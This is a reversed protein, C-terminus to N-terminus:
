PILEDMRVLEYGADRLGTIIEPLANVTQYGGVHMLVIGNDSARNLVRDILYQETVNVGNMTEAWDHSDITWMVTYQYGHEGLVNLLRNNYEGYPPRFMTPTYGITDKIINTSEIIDTSVEDETMTNMHGHAQSHSEILHGRSVIERTLDPHDKVWGGRLFFTAKVQYQDLVDLLQLTKDYEWGSDFTLALQKAESTSTGGWVLKSATLNLNLDKVLPPPPAPTPTPTETTAPEPQPEQVAEPTLIPAPESVAGHTPETGGTTDPNQDSNQHSNGCGLMLAMLMAAMFLIIEFKKNSILYYNKKRKSYLNIRM